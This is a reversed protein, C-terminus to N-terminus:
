RTINAIRQLTHYPFPILLYKNLLYTVLTALKVLKAGATLSFYVFIQLLHPTHM